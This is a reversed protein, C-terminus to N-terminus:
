FAESRPYLDRAHVGRRPSNKMIKAKGCKYDTWTQKYKQSTGKDATDITFETSYINALKAMAM